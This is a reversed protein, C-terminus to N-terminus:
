SSFLAIIALLLLVLGQLYVRMKMMKNSKKRKEDGDQMMQWLGMMLIAFVIAVLVMVCILIVPKM